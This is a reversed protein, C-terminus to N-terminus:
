RGLFEFIYEQNIIRQELVLALGKFAPSTDNDEIEKTYVLGSLDKNREFCFVRSINSKEDLFYACTVGLEELHRFEEKALLRAKSLKKCPILIGDEKYENEISLSSMEKKGFFVKIASNDQYLEIRGITKKTKPEVIDERSIDKGPNTIISFDSYILGLKKKKDGDLRLIHTYAEQLLRNTRILYITM